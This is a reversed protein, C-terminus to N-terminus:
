KKLFEASKMINEKYHPILEDLFNIFELSLKDQDTSNQNDKDEEGNIKLIECVTDISKYDVGKIFPYLIKIKFSENKFNINQPYSKLREGSLINSLIHKVEKDLTLSSVVGNINNDKLFKLIEYKDKLKLFEDYSNLDSEILTIGYKRLYSEMIINSLIDKKNKNFILINDKVKISHSLSKSSKIAIKQFVSSRFIEINPFKNTFTEEKKRSFKSFRLNNIYIKFDYLSIFRTDVKLMSLFKLVDRKSYSQNNTLM